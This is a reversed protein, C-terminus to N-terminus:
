QELRHPQLFIRSLQCSKASRAFHEIFDAFARTIEDSLSSLFELDDGVDVPQRAILTDFINTDKGALFPQLRRARFHNRVQAAVSCKIQRNLVIAIPHFRAASM